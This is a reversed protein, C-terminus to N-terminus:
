TLRLVDEISTEGSQARRLASKRLTLMGQQAALERLRDLGSRALIAERVPETIELLEHIALRGRYGDRCRSCGVATWVREGEFPLDSRVRCHRCLRRLLRQATVGTLTSALIYDPLGMDLLRLVTSAADNTHLTGLVLHGTLSAQAALEATQADRIEGVMVVNPDQRLVGRLVNAFTLGIEPQVQVQNARPIRMEVPDEITVVNTEPRNRQRLAAYLTTTKGSGTPGTVLVWGHPAHILRTFLELQGEQFGLGALHEPSAEPNLLRIVVKEGEFCPLTSVRFDLSRNRFPVTIRGDQPLRRQVVDMGAMIKVRAILPAGMEQPLQEDDQLMGDIRLRVVTGAERVEVHIDSAREYIARFLLGDMFAIVPKANVVEELSRGGFFKAERVGARLEEAERALERGSYCYMLANEIQVPSAYLPLVTRGVTKAVTDVDPLDGPESTALLLDEGDLRLPVVRLGLALQEPILAAVRPDLRHLDLDVSDTGYHLEWLYREHEPPFKGLRLIAPVEAMGHQMFDQVRRCEEVSLLGARVFQALWSERESPEQAPLSKGDVIARVRAAMQEPEWRYKLWTETVGLKRAREVQSSIQFDLALLVTPNALHAPSVETWNRM